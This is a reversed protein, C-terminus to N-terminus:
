EEVYGALDTGSAKAMQEVTPPIEGELCPKLEEEAHVFGLDRHFDNGVTSVWDFGRGDAEQLRAAQRAARTFLLDVDRRSRQPAGREPRAHGRDLLLRHM